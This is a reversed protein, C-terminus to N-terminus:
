DELIDLLKKILPDYEKRKFDLAFSRNEYELEKLYKFRVDIIQELLTILVEAKTSKKLM